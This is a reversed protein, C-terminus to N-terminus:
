SQIIIFIEWTANINSLPDQQYVIFPLAKYPWRLMINNCFYIHDFYNLHNYAGM